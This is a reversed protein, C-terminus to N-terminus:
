RAVACLDLHGVCFLGAHSIPDFRLAVIKKRDFWTPHSERDLRAVYEQWDGLRGNVEVTLSKEESFSEDGEHRWYIQSFSYGPHSCWLNFRIADVEEPARPRLDITFSPDDNLATFRATALYRADLRTGVGPKVRRSPIRVSQLTRWGDDSLQRRALARVSEPLFPKIQEARRYWGSARHRAAPQTTSSSPARAVGSV